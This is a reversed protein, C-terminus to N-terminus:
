NPVTGMIFILKSLVKVDNLCSDKTELLNEAKKNCGCIYHIFNRRIIENENRSYAYDELGLVMLEDIASLLETEEIEKVFSESITDNRGFMEADRDLYNNLIQECKSYNTAFDTMIYQLDAFFTFDGSKWQMENVQTLYAEEGTAAYLHILAYHNVDSLNSSNDVTEYLRRAIDTKELAKTENIDYYVAGFKALMGTLCCIERNSYAINENELKDNVERSIEDVSKVIYVWDTFNEGYLESSLMLVTLMYCKDEICTNESSKLKEYIENYLNTFTDSGICFEYSYGYKELYAVYRGATKFQSFDGYCIQEDGVKMNYMTGEFVANGDETNIISFTDGAVERDVYLIKSEDGAYGNADIVLFPKQEQYDFSTEEIGMSSIQPTPIAEEVVTEKGCGAVCIVM